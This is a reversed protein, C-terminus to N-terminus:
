KSEILDPIKNEASKEKLKEIEYQYIKILSIATKITSRDYSDDLKECLRELNQLLLFINNESLYNNM